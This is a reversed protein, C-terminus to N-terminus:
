KKQQRPWAKANEEGNGQDMSVDEGEPDQALANHLGAIL